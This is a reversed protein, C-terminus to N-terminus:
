FIFLIVEKLFNVNLEELPANIEALTFTEDSVRICNGINFTKLNNCENLVKSFIRNDGNTGDLELHVLSQMNRFSINEMGILNEFGSDKWKIFLILILKFLDVM